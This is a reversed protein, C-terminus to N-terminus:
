LAWGQRCERRLLKDADANGVFKLAQPDFELKGPMQTAINGLLVFEALPGAYDFNSLAPPGGRCADFWEREHGRARPLVPAPMELGKFKEEPLLTFTANHGTLHMAGKGGVLLCGAHDAYKKEGADGWDLKRGIIKEVMDRCQPAQGGGNYWTLRAPPMDGRAPLDYRIIEWKPFTDRCVSSVEAELRVTPGKGGAAAGAQWLTDFRLAKFALNMTHSAWNGLQGTAFDRWGHWKLWEPHFPRAAVPGLWLDWQLTEPVPVPDKPPLPRPGSGGGTNWAHVERIEGLIGAQVIDYAQRFPPAATGQNGM